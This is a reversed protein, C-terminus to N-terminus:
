NKKYNRLMKLIQFINMIKWLFSFKQSSNKEFSIFDFFDILNNNAYRSIDFFKSRTDSSRIESDKSSFNILNKSKKLITSHNTKSAM